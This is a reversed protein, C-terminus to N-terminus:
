KLLFVMDLLLQNEESLQMWGHLHKERVGALILGNDHMKINYHTGRRYNDLIHKIKSGYNEWVRKKDKSIEFVRTIDLLVM